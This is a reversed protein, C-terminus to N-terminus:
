KLSKKYEKILRKRNAIRRNYLASRLIFLMISASIGLIGLIYFLEVLLFNTDFAFFMGVFCLLAGGLSGIASWLFAQRAACFRQLDKKYQRIEKPIQNTMMVRTTMTMMM